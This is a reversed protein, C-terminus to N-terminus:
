AALGAMVAAAASGIDEKSKNSIRAKVPFPNRCAIFRALIRWAGM